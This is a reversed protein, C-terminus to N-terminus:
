SRRLASKRKEISHKESPQGIWLYRTRPNGKDDLAIEEVIQEGLYQGDVINPKSVKEYKTPTDNFVNGTQSCLTNIEDLHTELLTDNIASEQIIVGTGDKAVLINNGSILSLLEDLRDYVSENITGVTSM